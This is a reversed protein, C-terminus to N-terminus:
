CVHYGEVCTVRVEVERQQEPTAKGGKVIRRLHDILAQAMEATRAATFAGETDPQQKPPITHTNQKPSECVGWVRVSPYLGVSRGSRGCFLVVCSFVRVRGRWAGIYVAEQGAGRFSRPIRADVALQM